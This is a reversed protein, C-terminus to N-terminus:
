LLGVVRTVRFSPALQECFLAGATGDLQGKHIRELVTLEDGAIGGFYWKATVEGHTAQELDRAFAKMERAWATGEPALAALRLRVPDAHATLSVLLLALALRM